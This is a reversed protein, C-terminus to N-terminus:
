LFKPQQARAAQATLVRQTLLLQATQPSPPKGTITVKRNRTGLIYEGKKSIQIKAGSIDQYEILTRGARGLIAGILTEPISLEITEKLGDSTTETSLLNVTSHHSSSSVLTSCLLSNSSPALHLSAPTAGDSLNTTSVLHGGTLFGASTLTNLTLNSSNPVASENEISLSTAPLLPNASPVAGSLSGNSIVRVSTANGTHLPHIGSVVNVLGCNLGYSYNGVGGLSGTLSALDNAPLTITPLAHHPSTIYSACPLATQFFSHQGSAVYNGLLAQVDPLSADIIAPSGAAYPSGTPNANAVPGVMAAYSINPCSSSQPDDKIKDIIINSASKLQHKEGKITIVREQVNM